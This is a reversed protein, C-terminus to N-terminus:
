HFALLIFATSLTWSSAAIKAPSSAVSPTAKGVQGHGPMSKKLWGEPCNKLVLDCLFPMSASLRCSSHQICQLTLQHGGLEMCLRSSVATPSSLFRDVRSAPAAAGSREQAAAM